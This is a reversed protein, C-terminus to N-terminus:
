NFCFSRKWFNLHLFLYLMFGTFDFVRFFVCFQVWFFNNQYFVLAALIFFSLLLLSRKQKCFFYFFKKLLLYYFLNLFLIFARLDFIEIFFGEVIRLRDPEFVYFENDLNKLSISLLWSPFVWRYVLIFVLIQLIFILQFFFKFKNLTRPSLGSYFYTSLSCFLLPFSVFISWFGAQYYLFIVFQQPDRVLAHEELLGDLELAYVQEYAWFFIIFLTLCFFISFIFKLRFEKLHGLAYFIGFFIVTFLTAFLGLFRFWLSPWLFSNFFIYFSM